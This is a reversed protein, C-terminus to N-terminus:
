GAQRTAAVVFCAEADCALVWYVGTRWPVYQLREGPTGLRRPPDGIRLIYIEYPAAALAKSLVIDRTKGQTKRVIRATYAELGGADWRSLLLADRPLPPRAGAFAVRLEFSHLRGALEAHLQDISAATSRHIGAIDFGKAAGLDFTAHPREADSRAARYVPVLQVGAMGLPKDLDPGRFSVRALAFYKAVLERKRLDRFDDGIYWWSEGVQDFAEITVSDGPRSAELVAMRAAGQQAVARYLPITRFGAYVSAALALVVFPALRRPTVLVRDAIALLGALLLAMSVLHFRSGLKPSVFLTAAILTGALLSLAIVRVAPGLEGPREGPEAASRTARQVGAVLVIVLLALLPAAYTLYDRLIDLNGAIGRQVLRMPLSVQQALEGYREDQGPAFFLAAFGTVVGLFGALVLRPQHGRRRLWWAHGLLFAILTPGVHENCLGVFVGAIGFLVCRLPSADGTPMRRLPVLFWLQLAATYIYNASYARCFMNRGLQPLVFWGFGIAITWLALDRPRRPWRGLGLVTIALSLAVYALPTALEAFGDLKYTLYTFAQGLRPNSTTYQEWWFEFFRGPTAPQAGSDVAVNWADFAFPEHHIVYGVHVATAAVYAVFLAVLVRSWPM